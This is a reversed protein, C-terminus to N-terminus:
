ARRRRLFALAGIALLGISSPEPVVAAGAFNSASGINEPVAPAPAATDAAANFNSATLAVFGAESGTHDAVALALAAEAEHVIASVGTLTLQTGARHSELTLPTSIVDGAKGALREIDLWKILRGTTETKAFLNSGTSVVAASFAAPSLAALSTVISTALLFRRSM